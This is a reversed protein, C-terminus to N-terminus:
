FLSYVFRKVRSWLSPRYEELFNDLVARVYRESGFSSPDFSGAVKARGRRLRRLSRVTEPIKSRLYRIAKRFRLCNRRTTSGYRLRVIDYFIKGKTPVWKACLSPPSGLLENNIQQFFIYSILGDFVTGDSVSGNSALTLYDEWCGVKEITKSFVITSFVSYNERFIIEMMECFTAVDGLGDTERKVNRTGLTYLALKLLDDDPIHAILQRFRDCDFTGQSLSVFIEQTANM